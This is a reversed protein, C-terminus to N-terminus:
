DIDDNLNAAQMQMPVLLTEHDKDNTSLVALKDIHIEWTFSRQSLRQVIQALKDHGVNRFTLTIHPRWQDPHYYPRSGTATASVREWLQEHFYALLPNRIIPVFLIPDTGTFIGLGHTEVKFPAIEKVADRMVVELKELNYQDAVHYSFHPIQERSIRTVGFDRQLEEWLEEVLAAYREDLLSVLAYM